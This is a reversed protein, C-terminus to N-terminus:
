GPAVSTEVRDAPVVSKPVIFTVYEVPRGRYYKAVDAKTGDLMDKHADLDLHSPMDNFSLSGPKKFRKRGPWLALCLYPTRRTSPMTFLPAMGMVNSVDNAMTRWEVNISVTGGDRPVAKWSWRRSPLERLTDLFPVIASEHDIAPFALMVADEREGAKILLDDLEPKISWVVAVDVRKADAAFSAAFRCGTFWRLWASLGHQINVSLGERPDLEAL